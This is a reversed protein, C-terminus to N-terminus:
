EAARGTRPDGTENFSAPASQEIPKYDEDIDVSVGSINLVSEWARPSEKRSEIMDKVAIVLSQNDTKVEDTTMPAKKDRAFAVGFEGLFARLLESRTDTISELMNAPITKIAELMKVDDIISDNIVTDTYGLRIALEVAQFSRATKEDPAASIMPRRVNYLTNALTSEVDALMRAYRSVIDDIGTLKNNNRIVVIDQNVRGEGKVLPTCWIAFPRYSPYLGVGFTHVPVAVLGYTKDRVIGCQGSTLLIKEIEIAPIEEPVGEWKFLRAIKLYLKDKWYEYGNAVNSVDYLSEYTKIDREIEQKRNKKLLGFM